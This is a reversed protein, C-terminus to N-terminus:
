RMLFLPCELSGTLHRVDGDPPALLGGFHGIVFGGRLRRLVEAFAAEGGHAIVTREIGVHESGGLALRSQGEMWASKEESDAAALVIISGETTSPLLREAARMMPELDVFEELVVVVPGETRRANPGAVIIGTTGSVAEFLQRIGFAVDGGITNGLAVVNWPGCEACAKALAPVPQDRVVTQRLPVEALKALEAIQRGLATAMHRMQRAMGEASLERRERGSLSIERAFSFGAVDLLDLDEVFLSEIESQFAKAVRIAAELAIPNPQESSIQLVVRGRQEGAEAVHAIM